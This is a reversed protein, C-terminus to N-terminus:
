TRKAERLLFDVVKDQIMQDKISEIRNGESLKTRLEELPQNANKAIQQIRDELESESIEFKEEKAIKDLIFFLKVDDKAKTQVAGELHKHENDIDEKKYGQYLLRTKADEVLRQTQKEVLTQPIDFPHAKLLNDFVQSELNRRAQQTKTKLLSERIRDKLDDLSKFQGTGKALDDNLEPLIKVKIQNPTVKYLGQKGALEKNKYDRPHIVEITKEVDRQAGVLCSFLEKPQLDDSIYLWLKDNKDVTKGGVICEYNCVIYDGKAIPRDQINKYQALSEQVNKLANQEDKDTVEAPEEKVRIGKYNKLRFEPSVDVKATFTFPRGIYFSVDEIFPYGVPSIKHEALAQRYSERVLREVVEDRATQSYQKEVLDRPAKGQRFGPITARKQIQGFVTEFESQVRDKEIEIRILKQSDKQNEVRIKM